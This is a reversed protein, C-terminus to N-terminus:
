VEHLKLFLGVSWNHNLSCVVWEFSTKFVIGEVNSAETKWVKNEVPTFYNVQFTHMQNWVYIAKNYMPIGKYQVCVSVNLNATPSIVLDWKFDTHECTM